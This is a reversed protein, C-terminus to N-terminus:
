EVPQADVIRLFDMEMHQNCDGSPEPHSFLQQAIDISRLTLPETITLGAQRLLDYINGRMLSGPTFIFYGTYPYAVFQGPLSLQLSIGGSFGLWLTQYHASSGDALVPPNTITMADIKFQLHTDRTIQIPLTNDANCQTLKASLLTQNVHADLYDSPRNNDKILDDEYLFNIINASDPENMGHCWQYNGTLGKDWEENFLIKGGKFVKGIVAGLSEANGTPSIDPKEAGL